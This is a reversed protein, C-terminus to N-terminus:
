SSVHLLTSRVVSGSVMPKLVADFQGYDGRKLAQIFEDRGTERKVVIDVSSEFERFFETAYKIPRGLWLVRPHSSAM